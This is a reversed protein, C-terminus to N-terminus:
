QGHSELPLTEVEYTSFLPNLDIPHLGVLDGVKDNLDATIVTNAQGPRSDDVMSERGARFRARCKRVTKDSVCEEGYVTVM